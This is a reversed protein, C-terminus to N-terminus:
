FIICRLELNWINLVVAKSIKDCMHKFVLDRLGEVHCWKLLIPLGGIIPVDFKQGLRIGRRGHEFSVCFNVAEWM